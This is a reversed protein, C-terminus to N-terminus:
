ATREPAPRTRDDPPRVTLRVDVGVTAVDDVRWRLADSMTRVGWGAVVSPGAGLLVPAVYTVCRDVLDAGVFAAAVTPGGELLVSVVGRAHLATLADRPSLDLVVTEAADDLVRAGAPTRGSRDLVVRLPQRPLLTGDPHRATLHPDDALVTGVGVVVADVEDRLAHVEARAAPGTVWRSSGDAAAVRGDLTTASKWTVCPRGRAQSVLWAELPGRRVLEELDPGVRVVEVGAAALRAAGGAALETPDPTGVVVRAVGAALVADTCPGTRGTHACPELTVVLTAGRAAPGASRLALLEAHPGGPPQTAGVGLVAGTGPHLVVAGVPPNPSTRGLATRSAALATRLPAAWPDPAPSPEGPAAIM